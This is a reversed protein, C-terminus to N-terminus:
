AVFDLALGQNAVDAAVGAEEVDRGDLAAIEDVIRLQRAVGADRFFGNATEELDELFGQEDESNRRNGRALM